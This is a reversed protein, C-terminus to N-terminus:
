ISMLREKRNCFNTVLFSNKSYSVEILKEAYLEIQPFYDSTYEV